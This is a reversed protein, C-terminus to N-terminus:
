INWGETCQLLVRISCNQLKKKKKFFAGKQGNLDFFYVQNM